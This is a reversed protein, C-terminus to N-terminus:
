GPGGTQDSGAWEYFEPDDAYLEPEDNSALIEADEVPSIEAVTASPLGSPQAVWVAVALVAAAALAGGPLWAGPVRFRPASARKELKGLAVFRAATLRSRARGDLSETSARLLESARREFARDSETLQEDNM